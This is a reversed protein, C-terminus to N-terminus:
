VQTLIYKSFESSGIKNDGHFPFYFTNGNSRIEKKKVWDMSLSKDM